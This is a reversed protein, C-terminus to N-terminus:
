KMNDKTQQQPNAVHCALSKILSVVSTRIIIKEVGVVVMIKVKPGVSVMHMGDGV